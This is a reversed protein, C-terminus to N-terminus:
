SFFCRKYFWSKLGKQFDVLVQANSCLHAYIARDVPKASAPINKSFDVASSTMEIIDDDCESDEQDSDDQESEDEDSEHVENM